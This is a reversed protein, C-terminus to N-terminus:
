LYYRLVIVDFIIYLCFMMMLILGIILSADFWKEKKFYGLIAGIGTFVLIIHTAINPLFYRGPLGLQGRSIWNAVRIGLQLTVLMGILFIAYKKEPLHPFKNKSFLFIAIGIASVFDIACIINILSNNLFWNNTWSIAGWYTRSSLIYKGLAFDSLFYDNISKAFIGFHEIFRGGLFGVTALVMIGILSYIAYRLNKNRNKFKEYAVYSLLFSMPVLLIYATPKALTGIYISAAMLSFNAFKLGQKLALVGGLVFLTFALILLADYNIASYYISFRPQFAIIASILLSAKSSLGINKAILYSFLITLTGLFVSFIRVSFYRVLISQSSLMEIIVSALRHYFSRGADSIPYDENHQNWKKENIESENEGDYGKVFRATNYLEAKVAEDFNMVRATELTEEPLNSSKIGLNREKKVKENIPWAIPRPEAFFAASNYHRAEDQGIFIPHLTALFVGKLFFAGLILALIFVPKKWFTLSQVKTMIQKYHMLVTYILKGLKDLM